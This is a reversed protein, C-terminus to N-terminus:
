YIHKYTFYRGFQGKWILTVGKFGGELWDDVWYIQKNKKQQGKWIWDKEFYFDKLFLLWAVYFGIRKGFKGCKKRNWCRRLNLNLLHFSVLGVWQLLLYQSAVPYCIDQKNTTQKSTIQNCFSYNTTFFFKLYFLQPTMLILCITKICLKTKISKYTSAFPLTCM